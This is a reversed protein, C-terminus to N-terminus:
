CVRLVNDCFATHWIDRSFKLMRHGVKIEMPVIKEM